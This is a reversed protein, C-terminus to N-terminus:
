GRIFDPARRACESCDVQRDPQSVSQSVINWSYALKQRNFSGLSLSFALSLSLSFCVLRVSIDVVAKVQSILRPAFFLPPKETAVVISSCAEEVSSLWVDAAM